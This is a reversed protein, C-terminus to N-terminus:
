RLCWPMGRAVTDLRQVIDMVIPNFKEDREYGGFIVIKDFYDKLGLCAM